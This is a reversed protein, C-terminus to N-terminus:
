GLGIGANEVKRRASDEAVNALKGHAIGQLKSNQRTIADARFNHGMGQAHEHM